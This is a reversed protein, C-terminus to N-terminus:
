VQLEVLYSIKLEEDPSVTPILLVLILLLGGRRFLIDGFLDDLKPFKEVNVDGAIVNGNAVSHSCPSSVAVWSWNNNAEFRVSGFIFKVPGSLM